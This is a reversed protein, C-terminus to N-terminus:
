AESIDQAGGQEEENGPLNLSPVHLSQRSVASKLSVKDPRSFTERFAKMFAFLRGKEWNEQQQQWKAFTKGAFRILEENGPQLLGVFDLMEALFRATYSGRSSGFIYIDDGPAYYRM